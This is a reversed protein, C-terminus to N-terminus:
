ESIAKVMADYKKRLDRILITVDSYIDVAKLVNTFDTNKDKMYSNIIMGTQSHIIGIRTNISNLESIAREKDM